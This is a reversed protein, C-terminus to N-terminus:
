SVATSGPVKFQSNARHASWAGNLEKKQTTDVPITVKFTSGKDLDTEFSINGRMLDVLRKTFALGLGTEASSM